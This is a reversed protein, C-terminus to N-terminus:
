MIKMNRSNYNEILRILSTHLAELKLLLSIWYSVTNIIVFLLLELETNSVCGLWSGLAFASLVQSTNFSAISPKNICVTDM